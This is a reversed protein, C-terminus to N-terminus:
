DCESLRLVYMVQSLRETQTLSARNVSKLHDGYPIVCTVINNRVMTTATHDTANTHTGRCYREIVNSHFQRRGTRSINPKTTWRSEIETLNTRRPWLYFNSIVLPLHRLYGTHWFSARYMWCNRCFVPKYCVSVPGIYIADRQAYTLLHKNWIPPWSVSYRLLLVISLCFVLCLFM